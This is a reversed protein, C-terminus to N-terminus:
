RTSPRRKQQAGRQEFREKWNREGKTTAVPVEIERWLSKTHTRWTIAMLCFGSALQKPTTTILHGWIEPKRDRAQGVKITVSTAVPIQERKFAVPKRLTCGPVELSVVVIQLYKGRRSPAVGTGRRMCTRRRKACAPWTVKLAASTVDEARRSALLTPLGEMGFSACRGMPPWCSALQRNDEVVKTYTIRVDMLRPLHRRGTQVKLKKGQQGIV